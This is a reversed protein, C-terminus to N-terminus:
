PTRTSVRVFDLAINQPFPTADIPDGGFLGGVALNLIIFYPHDWVWTAYNPIRDPTVQAYPVDDVLFVVDDPDWEIAYTHFTTDVGGPVAAAYTSPVDVLGSISPGHVSGLVNHVDYGKQEMIDVEGARPWGVEGINDGMIWFAPWMGVGNALRMRAEFRGYARSFIGRTTLRASTYASGMFAERKATILLNGQGDLAINDPRDTYYQLEKNGWGDGGTEYKWKTADPAQGALGEFEDQWVITWQGAQWTIPPGADPGGSGRVTATPACAAAWFTFVLVPAATAPRDPRRLSTSTRRPSNM